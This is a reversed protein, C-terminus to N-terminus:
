SQSLMYRLIKGSESPPLELIKGYLGIAMSCVKGKDIDAGTPNQLMSLDNGYQKELDAYIPAVKHIVDNEHPVPQPDEASTKIVTALAALDEEQTQKSFYKRGDIPGSKQPFLFRYCLDGGQKNLEEMETLMVKVYSATAEDSARPLRKQVLITIHGRVAGIIQAENSGKKLLSKVDSLINEYTKPDYQKIAQFAPIALLQPEANRAQHRGNLDPFVYHTSIGQLVAFSFVFTTVYAARKEKPNRVIVTAIIAALAGSLAALGISIWNM